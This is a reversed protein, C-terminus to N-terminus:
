TGTPLKITIGSCCLYIMSALTRPNTHGYGRRQIVRIKTNIGEARGNSLGNEVAAVIGDLYRTLRDALNIFPKIGSRKARAIWRQLYDHANVPEIIRYLDRLEEKMLYARHLERRESRIVSLFKEQQPKLRERAARLVFRAQFWARNNRSKQMQAKVTPIQGARFTADLAENAWKIIHFQDFCVIAHPACARTAGIYAAGCDMTVAQLQACRQPGLETYFQELTDRRNGQGIWVVRGSDHDSVVTLFHRGKKYSIEDVGIRFLEDLRRSDIREDVVREIIAHVAEWSCRMLVSISTKDMRQALWAVMDEFDVTHRAGPRAWEVNETRVRQCDPCWIRSIEARLWLRTGGVDIHRWKRSSRDYRSRVLRGCPCQHLTRRRRVDVVLGGEVFEVGVIWVGDVALMQNFLSTVRM